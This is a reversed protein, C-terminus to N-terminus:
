SIRKERAFDTQWSFEILVRDLKWNKVYRSM